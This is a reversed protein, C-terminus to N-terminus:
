LLSVPVQISEAVRLILGDEVVSEVDRVRALTHVHVSDKNGSTSDKRVLLVRDVVEPRSGLLNTGVLSCGLKEAVATGVASTIVVAVEDVAVFGLSQVPAVRSGDSRQPAFPGADLEVDVGVLGCVLHVATGALITHLVCLGKMYSSIFSCTSERDLRGLTSLAATAEDLLVAADDHLNLVPDVGDVVGFPPALLLLDKTRGAWSVRELGLVDKRGRLLSKV